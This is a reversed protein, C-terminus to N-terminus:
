NNRLFRCFVFNQMTGFPTTHDSRLCEEQYFSQSFQDTLTKESYQTISIGSCKKPGETSFTGLILNGNPKLSKSVLEIYKKIEATDTLFHFAARDHWCDYKKEPHFDIIDSIIWTMDSQRAGLRKKARQIAAKSIDLVSLNTYGLDLLHDILNSDGAGVDIINAHKSLNGNQIMKLSIEPVAQTWSVEHSGKNEYITEWHNKKDM